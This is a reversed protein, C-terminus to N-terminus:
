LCVGEGPGVRPGLVSQRMTSLTPGKVNNKHNWWPESFRLVLM